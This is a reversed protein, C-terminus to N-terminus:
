KIQGLLDSFKSMDFDDKFADKKINSGLMSSLSGLQALSTANKLGENFKGMVGGSWTDKFASTSIGKALDGLAKSYDGISAAKGLLKTFGGLGKTLFEPTFSEAKLGGSLLSLAMGLPSSPPSATKCSYPALVAGLFLAIILAKKM